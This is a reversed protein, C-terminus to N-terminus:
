EKIIKIFTVRGNTQICKMLYIGSRENQLDVTFATSVPKVTMLLGGLCNYIELKKLPIERIDIKFLGDSPNPFVYPTEYINEMLGTGNGPFVPGSNSLVFPVCTSCGNVNNVICHTYTGLPGASFIAVQGGSVVPPPFGGPSYTFHTINITPTISTFTFTQATITANSVQFTSSSLCVPSNTYNVITITQSTSLTGSAATVIYNGPNSVTISSGIASLNPGTWAYNVSATYNSSALLNIQANVCTLSFQFTSSTVTFNLPQANVGAGILFLLFLTFARM